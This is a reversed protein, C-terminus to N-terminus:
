KFADEGSRTLVYSGDKLVIDDAYISTDKLVSELRINDIVGGYYAYPESGIIPKYKMRESAWTFKYLPASFSEDNKNVGVLYTTFGRRLRRGFQAFEWRVEADPADFFRLTKGNNIVREEWKANRIQKGVPERSPSRQDLYYPLDDVIIMRGPTIDKPPDTWPLPDTWPPSAFIDTDYQTIKQYWNFNKFGSLEAAQALTLEFGPTFYAEIDGDSQVPKKERPKVDPVAPIKKDGGPLYLDSEEIIRNFVSVVRGYIEFSVSQGEPVKIVETVKTYTGDKNKQRIGLAQFYVPGPSERKSVPDSPEEEAKKYFPRQELPVLINNITPDILDSSDSTDSENPTNDKNQTNIFSFRALNSPMRFKAPNELDIGYDLTLSTIGFAKTEEEPEKGNFYTVDGISFIGRGPANNQALASESKNSADKLSQYVPADLNFSTTPTFEVSTSKGWKAKESGIGKVFNSNNTVLSAPGFGTFKGFTSGQVQAVRGTGVGTSKPAANGSGGNTPQPAAAGPTEGGTEGGINQAALNLSYRIREQTRRTTLRIYYTGAALPTAISEKQTGPKRSRKIARGRENLLAVDVNDTLGDLSLTFNRSQSLSFSLFDKRDRRGLDGQRTLSSSLDGLKVATAIKNDNTRRAMIGSSRRSVEVISPEEPYATILRDWLAKPL